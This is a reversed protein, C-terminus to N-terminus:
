ILIFRQRPVRTSGPDYGAVKNQAETATAPDQWRRWWVRICYALVVVDILTDRAIEYLRRWRVVLVIPPHIADHVPIRFIVTRLALRARLYTGVFFTTLLFAEAALVSPTPM